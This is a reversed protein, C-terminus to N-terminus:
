SQCRPKPRTAEAGPPKRALDRVSAVVLSVVYWVPAYSTFAFCVDRRWALILISSVLVLDAHWLTAHFLSIVLFGFDTQWAAICATVTATSSLLAPRLCGNIIAAPRLALRRYAPRHGTVRSAPKSIGASECCPWGRDGPVFSIQFINWQFKLILCEFRLAWPATCPVLAQCSRAPGDWILRCPM